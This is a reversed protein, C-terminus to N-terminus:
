RSQHNSNQMNHIKAYNKRKHDLGLECAKCHLHRTCYTCSIFETHRQRATTKRENWEVSQFSCRHVMVITDCHQM